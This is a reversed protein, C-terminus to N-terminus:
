PLYPNKAMDLGLKKPAFPMYPIKNLQNLRRISSIIETKSVSFRKAAENFEFFEGRKEKKELVKLLRVDLWAKERASDNTLLRVVEVESKGGFVTQIIKPRSIVPDAIGYIRSIESLEYLTSYNSEEFNAERFPGWALCLGRRNLLSRLAVLKIAGSTQIPIPEYSFTWDYVSPREVAREAPIAKASIINGKMGALKAVFSTKKRARIVAERILDTFTVRADHAIARAWDGTFGAVVLVRDGSAMGLKSLLQPDRPRISQGHKFVEPRKWVAHATEYNSSIRPFCLRSPDIKQSAM